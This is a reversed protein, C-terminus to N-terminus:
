PTYLEASSTAGTSTLGGAALVKGKHLLDAYPLLAWPELQRDHELNWFNCVVLCRRDDRLSPYQSAAAWCRFLYYWEATVCGARPFVIPYVGTYTWFNTSFDFLESTQVICGNCNGEVLVQGGSLLTAAHNM